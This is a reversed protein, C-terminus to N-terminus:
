QHRRCREPKAGLVKREILHLADAYLPVVHGHRRDLRIREAQPEDQEHHCEVSEQVGQEGPVDLVDMWTDSVCLGDTTIVNSGNVCVLAYGVHGEWRAIQQSTTLKLLWRESPM